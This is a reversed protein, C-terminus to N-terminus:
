SRTEGSQILVYKLLFPYLLQEVIVVLVVVSLVQSPSFLYVFLIVLADGIQLGFNSRCVFDRGFLFVYALLNYLYFLVLRLGWVLGAAGLVFWSFELQQLGCVLILVAATLVKWLDLKDRATLVKVGTLANALGLTLAGAVFAYNGATALWCLFGFQLGRALM